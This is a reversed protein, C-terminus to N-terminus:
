RKATKKKMKTDMDIKSKTFEYSDLHSHCNDNLISDKIYRQTKEDFIKNVTFRKDHDNSYNYWM